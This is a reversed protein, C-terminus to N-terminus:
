SRADAELSKKLGENRIIHSNAAKVDPHSDLFEKIDEGTIDRNRPYLAELIAQVVTLDAPEDVTVRYGSDDSPNQLIHKRCIEPHGNMYLTLHERESPKTANKASIELMQFTFIECDFGEAFSQGTVVYDYKGKKFEAMVREIVAVPLLPCDGTVRIIPDADYQRAAGLFRDLVDKESGRFWAVGTQECLATIDDDEKNTTAAVVIQEIDGVKKLRELLYLLLPRGGVEKLVKGPLRTSAMRAQVIATLMNTITAVKALTDVIKQTM